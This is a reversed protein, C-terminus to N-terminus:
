WSQTLEAYGRQMVTFNYMNSTGDPGVPPYLVDDGYVHTLDVVTALTTRTTVLAVMVFVGLVAKM